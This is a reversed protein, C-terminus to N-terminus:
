FTALLLERIPIERGRTGSLNGPGLINEKRYLWKWVDPMRDGKFTGVDSLQVMLDVKSEGEIEPVLRNQSRRVLDVQSRPTFNEREGREGKM